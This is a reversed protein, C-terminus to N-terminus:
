SIVRKRTTCMNKNCLPNTILAFFLKVITWRKQTVCGVLYTTPPHEPLNDLTLLLFNYESKASYFYITSKKSEQVNPYLYKYM